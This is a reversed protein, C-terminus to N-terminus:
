GRHTRQGWVTIYVVAVAWLGIAAVYWVLDAGFSVFATLAGGFLLTSAGGVLWRRATGAAVPARTYRTSAVLGPLDALDYGPLDETLAALEGRTRAQYAQAIREALEEEDLRGQACHERLREAVRERDADSARVHPNSEAM